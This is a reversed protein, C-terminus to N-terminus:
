RLNVQKVCFVGRLLGRNANEPKSFVNGAFDDAIRGLAAGM